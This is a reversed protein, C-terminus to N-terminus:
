QLLMHPNRPPHLNAPQRAPPRAMSSSNQHSEKTDEAAATAAKTATTATSSRQLSTRRPAQFWGPRITAPNASAVKAPKNKNDDVDSPRPFCALALVHMCIIPLKMKM